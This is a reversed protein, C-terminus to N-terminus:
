SSPNALDVLGFPCSAWDVLDLFLWQDSANALDMSGLLPWQSSADAM